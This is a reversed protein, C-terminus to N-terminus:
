MWGNGVEGAAKGTEMDAEGHGEMEGSRTATDKVERETREDCMAKM